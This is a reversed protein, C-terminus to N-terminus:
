RPLRYREGALPEVLGDAVLSDLARARQRDAPWTARLVDGGVPADADRLAALLRGAPRGTPARTRRAAGRRATGPQIAPCGGRPLRRRASLEDCDPRRARACSRASSWSRRTGGPARRPSPRCCRRPRPGSPRRRRGPRNTSGAASRGRSCGGCTPTWCRTGVASRSPPSRQRRTPVSGPSGACSTWVRRCSAATGISASRRRRTCGCRAGPYGLRGWMRVAEGPPDAALAAPDPWRAMWTEFVPLVRVVPTQQLMVESVLVAWARSDLDDCEERWPLDRATREFWDLLPEHAMPQETRSAPMARM